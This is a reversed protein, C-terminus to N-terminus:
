SSCSKPNSLRKPACTQTLLYLFISVGHTSCSFVHLTQGLDQEKIISIPLLGAFTVYFIYICNKLSKFGRKNSFYPHNVTAPIWGNLPNIRWCRLSPTNLWLVLKPAPRLLLFGSEWLEWTGGLLTGLCPGWLNGLVPKWAPNGAFVNGPFLNGPFLNGLLTGLFPKWALNGLLTVLFLNGPVPEWSCTGLFLYCPEWSCIELCPKEPVHKWAVTGFCLEWPEWSRTGLPEWALLPEWCPKWALIGLVPEWALNGLVSEWSCTGLCANWSCTALCPNWSCTAM